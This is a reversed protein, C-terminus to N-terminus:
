EEVMLGESEYKFAMVAEASMKKALEGLEEENNLMMDLFKDALIIDYKMKDGGECIVEGL